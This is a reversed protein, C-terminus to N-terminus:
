FLYKLGFRIVRGNAASLIQGRNPNSIAWVPNGFNPKNFINFFESRFQLRHHERVPINKFFSLDRNESGPGYM